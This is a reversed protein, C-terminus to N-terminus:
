DERSAALLQAVLQQTEPPLHRILTFRGQPDTPIPLGFLVFQGNPHKRGRIHLEMHLEMDAAVGEPHALEQSSVPQPPSGPFSTATTLTPGAAAAAPRYVPLEDPWPPLPSAAAPQGSPAIPLSVAGARTTAMETWNLTQVPSLPFTKEL